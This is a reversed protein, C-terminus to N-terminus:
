MRRREDLTSSFGAREDFALVAQHESDHRGGLVRIRMDIAERGAVTKQQIGVTHHFRPIASALEEVALADRAPERVELYCRRIPEGVRCEAFQRAPSVAGLEL